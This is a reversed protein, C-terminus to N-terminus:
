GCAARLEAYAAGDLLTRAALDRDVDEAWAATGADPGATLGLLEAGAGSGYSFALLREGAARGRLASAVSLWLAATYANGTRRNWVLTPDVKARWLAETEEARLGWAEGLAGVAKRVMKPFPAHFCLAAIEALADDARRDGLWAAFTAVAAERYVDQSLPGDVRPYAEGVPRWFDFVPRSWAHTDLDVAAVRPEAVIMAVAGAGQTGEAASAPAYRAVDAAIVLAARGRAAGSARWEVAQRLALTGGYCAHKVEYSRVRGEIGLREAVYASLPRSMDVATETGVALLGLEDPSGGWRALAREAAGVALDVVDEDPACVAFTDCGLGVTLKDPDVSRLAALARVDVALSPLKLGLAALGTPAPASPHV